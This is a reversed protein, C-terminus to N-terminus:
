RVLLIVGDFIISKLTYTQVQFPLNFRSTTKECDTSKSRCSKLSHEFRILNPHYMEIRDTGEPNLLRRHLHKLDILPNPWPLTLKLVLGDDSLRVSFIGLTINSPPLLAITLRLTTNGPEICSSHLHLPM